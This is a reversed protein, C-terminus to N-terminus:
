HRAAHALEGFPIWFQEAMLDGITWRIDFLFRDTVDRSDAIRRALTPLYPTLDYGRHKQVGRSLRAVV